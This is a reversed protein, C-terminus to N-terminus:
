FEQTEILKCQAGTGAFTSIYKFDLADQYEIEVKYTVVNSNTRDKTRLFIKREQDKELEYPLHENHLIVEGEIVRFAKLSAREGKNVLNLQLEGEYGRSLGGNMTLRPKVSLRIKKEELEELKSKVKVAPKAAKVEAPEETAFQKYILWFAFAAATDSAFEKANDPRRNIVEGTKESLEVIDSIGRVVGHLIRKENGQREIANTFGFGEMEIVSTDNYKEKILKGLDSKIHELIQEGSAIIGINSKVDKEWKNQILSKWDAKRREQKALELLRYDSKGADPRAKVGDLEAKGGEYYYIKDPFIVDGPEFDQPKLSGAIGVFFMCDPKFYQIARETEQSARVNRDGCERIFVEAIEQGEHSFIGKEYFTGDRKEEKPFDLHNRVAEYEEKIATLIVVTPLIRGAVALEEAAEQNIDTDYIRNYGKETLRLCEPGEKEYNIFEQNILENVADNFIDQEPPTLNPIVSFHFKRMPVIHNARAKAKRFEDFVIEQLKNMMLRKRKQETEIYKLYSKHQQIIDKGHQTLELVLNGIIFTEKCLNNITLERILMMGQRSSLDFGLKEKVQLTLIAVDIKNDADQYLQRLIFDKVKDMFEGLKEQM